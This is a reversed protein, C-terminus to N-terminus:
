SGSGTGTTTTSQEKKELDVQNYNKTKGDKNTVSINSFSYDGNTNTITITYRAPPNDLYNKLALSTENIAGTVPTKEAAVYMKAANLVSRAEVALADEKSKNMIANVAPVAIAAIIGLIVIVALLEILTLGRQNKVIKKMM